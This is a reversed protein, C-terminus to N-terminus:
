KKKKSSNLVTRIFSVMGATIGFFTFVIFLVPKTEFKEDLWWGIYTAVAVTAALQIGIHSYRMLEKLAKNEKNNEQVTCKLVIM